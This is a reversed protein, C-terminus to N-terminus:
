PAAGDQDVALVRMQTNLDQVLLTVARGQARADAAIKLAAEEADVRYDFRRSRRLTSVIRWGDEFRVIALEMAQGM